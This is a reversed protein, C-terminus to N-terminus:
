AVRALGRLITHLADLAANVGGAVPGFAEKLHGDGGLLAAYMAYHGVSEPKVAGDQLFAIDPATLQAYKCLGILAQGLEARLTCATQGATCLAQECGKVIDRGADELFLANNRASAITDCVAQARRADVAQRQLEDWLPRLAASLQKDADQLEVYQAAAADAAASYTEYAADADCQLDFYVDAAADEAQAASQLGALLELREQATM